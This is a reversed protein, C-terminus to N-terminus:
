PLHKASIKAGVFEIGNQDLRLRVNETNAFHVKGSAVWLWRTIRVGDRLHDKLQERAATRKNIVTTVEDQKASHPEVAVIGGSPTHGLLYDWRNEQEHGVRVAADLDLSDAFANRISHDFYDRHANNLAGLGNVVSPLLTSDERLAARVPTKRATKKL